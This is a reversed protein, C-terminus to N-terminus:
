SLIEHAIKKIIEMSELDHIARNPNIGLYTFSIKNNHILHCDSGQDDFNHYGSYRGVVWFYDRGRADVRREVENSYHRKGLPAFEMGKIDSIPVDPINVNLVTHERIQEHIKHKLMSKILPVANEFHNKGYESFETTLSMAIAPLGHFTAERAAAVTGSYYIDQGLNGGKNVGSIVLDPKQGRMVEGLAMFTCDAPFGDIGYINEEIKDMRLPRDLSITHGTSSCQGLPAVVTVDHESKLAEYLTKIGKAYVGDDNTLLIKM